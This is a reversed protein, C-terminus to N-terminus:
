VANPYIVLISNTELPLFSIWRIDLNDVIMSETPCRFQWDTNIRNSCKKCGYRILYKVM